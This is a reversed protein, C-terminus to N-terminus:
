RCVGVSLLRTTVIESILVDQSVVQVPKTNVVKPGGCVRLGVGQVTALVEIPLGATLVM